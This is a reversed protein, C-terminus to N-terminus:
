IRLRMGMTFSFTRFSDPNTMIAISQTAFDIDFTNLIHFGLGASWAFRERGGILFGTRLPLWGAVPDLEMGISFQPTKTNGAVENLGFHGDMAVTWRFPIVDFVEDVRMEAGLHIATPLDFEFATTDRTEGKFSNTIITDQGRDIGSVSFSSNGVIAKTRKDWKISGIDTISAGVRVSNFVFASVGFDFGVGSGVPGPDDPDAVAQYQLFDFNGNITMSDIIQTGNGIDSRHVITQITGNYKETAFFALGALYKVGFGVSMESVSPLEFPLMYGGSFNVEAISSSNLATGNFSYISGNEELGRLPFKMYGEPLDLNVATQTSAVLAFGFSGIQLSLGIPAMEFRMQTKAIGDPFLGLIENKDQENLPKAIRNDPNNPDPIGTFYDNYIKYNFLDSGISLGVPAINLTFTANRDDLALNAPNTGVADLGRSLATFARGMGVLRPSYKDGGAYLTATMVVALLVIVCLSRSTTKM